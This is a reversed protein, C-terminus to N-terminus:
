LCTARYVNAALIPFKFCTGNGDSDVHKTTNPPPYHFLGLRTTTYIISGAVQIIRWFIGPSINSSKCHPGHGHSHVSREPHDTQVQYKLFMKIAQYLSDQNMM